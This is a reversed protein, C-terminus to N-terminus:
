KHCMKHKVNKSFLLLFFFPLSVFVNVKLKEMETVQFLLSFLNCYNSIKQKKGRMIKSFSSLFSKYGM